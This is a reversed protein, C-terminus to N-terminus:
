GRPHARAVVKKLDGIEVRTYIETTKLSAHGLFVQIHRIDAGGRLLHTAITHRFTHCTVHKKLKATKAWDNIIRGVIARYLYAGTNSLFLERRPRKGLLKPRGQMLYRQIAAAAPLTLPVVRDRMGKGKQVRLVGEETDIDDPVLASLEAVRLGTAYLTELIARDRLVIPSSGKAAGVIRAAERPTLILKPLARVQRPMELHAAPDQLMLGRRCLLRFLARVVNLRHAQYGISYLKGNPQKTASLDAQYAAIDEQRAEALEVGRGSLWSEFARAHAEYEPATRVGFRAHVDDAYVRLFEATKPSTATEHRNPPKGRM